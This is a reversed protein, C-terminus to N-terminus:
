SNLEMKEPPWPKENRRSWSRAMNCMMKAGKRVDDRGPNVAGSIEFYVDQWSGTRQYAAYAESSRSKEKPGNVRSRWAKVGDVIVGSHLVFHDGAEILILNSPSDNSHDGDVHHIDFGDSLRERLWDATRNPHVSLWSLHYSKFPKGM